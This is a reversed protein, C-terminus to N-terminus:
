QSRMETQRNTQGYRAYATLLCFVKASDIGDSLGPIQSLQLFVTLRKIWLSKDVGMLPNYGAQIKHLVGLM